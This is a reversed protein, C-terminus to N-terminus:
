IYRRVVSWGNLYCGLLYYVFIIIISMFVVLFFCYIINCFQTLKGVLM